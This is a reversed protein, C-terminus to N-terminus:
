KAALYQMPERERKYNSNQNSSVRRDGHGRRHQHRVLLPSRLPAFHSRKRSSSLGLRLTSFTTSLGTLIPVFRFPETDLTLYSKKVTFLSSINSSEIISDPPFILVFDLYQIIAVNTNLAAM